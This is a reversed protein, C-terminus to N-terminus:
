RISSDHKYGTFFCSDIFLYTFRIIRKLITCILISFHMLLCLHLHECSMKDKGDLCMQLTVIKTYGCYLVIILHTLCDNKGCQFIELISCNYKVKNHNILWSWKDRSRLWLLCPLLKRSNCRNNIQLNRPLHKFMWNTHMM